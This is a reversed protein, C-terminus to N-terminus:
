WRRTPTSARTSRISPSWRPSCRRAPGPPSWTASPSRWSASAARSRRVSRRHLRPEAARRCSRRRRACTPRPRASPMAREDLDRQAVASEGWCASASPTRQTTLRARRPPRSRRKPGNPKPRMPRPDITVLLDGQEVLAGERFHVAQVAGAVRSRVDVREVAELRGSFEDWLAVDRQEVVAVSVPDGAAARVSPDNAPSSTGPVAFLFAGAVLAVTM